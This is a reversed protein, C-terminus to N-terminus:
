GIDYSITHLELKETLITKNYLIHLGPWVKSTFDHLTKLCAAQEKGDSTLNFVFDMWQWPSKGRSVVLESMRFVIFM